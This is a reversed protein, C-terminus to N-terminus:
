HSALEEATYFKIREWKGDQAELYAYSGAVNGYQDFNCPGSAGEYDIENGDRLEKIGQAFSYVKKGPPTAIERYHSAIGQGTAEGAAEIALALIIQGDYANAQYAGGADSNYREKWKKSFRKFEQTDKKTIPLEAAIGEAIDPNVQDFFEPIALDATVMLHKGYGRQNWNKIITPGSSQGAALFLAQPDNKFTKKLPGLYTSQQGGFPVMSVVEGGLREFEKKMSEAISTRGEDNAHMISIKKFGEDLLMQASAKGDYSDSPCTRFQFKGGLKDLKTSGSYPSTVVVNNSRAYNLIGTVVTSVPGNIAIVNNVSILKRAGRIGKEVSSESDETYIKIERGLPGGCKNIEETALLAANYVYEGFAAMEGSYPVLIGIPIPKVNSDNQAHAKSPAQILILSVFLSLLVIWKCYISNVRM